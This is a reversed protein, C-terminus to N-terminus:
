NKNRCSCIFSMMMMMHAYPLGVQHCASSTQRTGRIFAGDFIEADVTNDTETLENENDDTGRFLMKDPGAHPIVIFEIHRDRLLPAGVHPRVHDTVLLLILHGLALFTYAAQQSPHPRTLTASAPGRPQCAKIAGRPSFIAAFM